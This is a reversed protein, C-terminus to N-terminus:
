ESALKFIELNDIIRYGNRKEIALNRMARAVTLAQIPRYKRLVPVVIAMIQTVSVVISEGARKEARKGILTAPRLISTAKFELHKIAEDLEGKM